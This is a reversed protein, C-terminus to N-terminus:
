EIGPDIGVMKPLSHSNKWISVRSYLVCVLLVVVNIIQILWLNHRIGYLHGPHACSSNVLEYLLHLLALTNYVFANEKQSSVTFGHCEQTSLSRKNVDPFSYYFKIYFYQILM